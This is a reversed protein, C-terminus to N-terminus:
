SVRNLWSFYQTTLLFIFILSIIKIEFYLRKNQGTKYNPPLKTHTTKEIITIYSMNELFCFNNGSSSVLFDARIMVFLSPDKKTRIETVRNSIDVM